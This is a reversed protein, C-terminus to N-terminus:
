VAIGASGTGSLKSILNAQRVRMCLFTNARKRNDMARKKERGSQCVADHAPKGAGAPLYAAKKQRM